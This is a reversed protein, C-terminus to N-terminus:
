KRGTFLWMGTKLFLVKVFVVQGSKSFLLKALLNGAKDKCFSMDSFAAPLPPGLCKLLGHTSGSTNSFTKESCFFRILDRPEYSTIKLCDAGLGSPMKCHWSRAFPKSSASFVAPNCGFGTLVAKTCSSGESGERFLELNLPSTQALLM